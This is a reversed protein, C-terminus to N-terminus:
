EGTTITQILKDVSFAYVEDLQENRLITQELKKFQILGHLTAWLMVAFKRTETRVFQGSVMGQEMIEEIVTLVRNGSMDIQEKRDKDFFSKPSSLFYNIINFYEEQNRSFDLYATGIRRLKEEASLDQDAIRRIISYLLALGEEQLAVFIDEKSKYYFYLTGVGLQSEKSIKSISIKSIGQSFLLKRAADLIQNRRM